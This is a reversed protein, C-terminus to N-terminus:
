ESAFYEDVFYVLVIAAHGLVRRVQVHLAPAVV